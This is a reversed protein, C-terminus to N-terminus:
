KKLRSYLRFAFKATFFLLFLAVVLTVSQILFLDWSFDKVM